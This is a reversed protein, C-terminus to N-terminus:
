SRQLIHDRENEVEFNKRCFEISNFFARTSMLQTKSEMDKMGQIVATLILNIESDELVHDNRESSLDECIYGLTELGSQQFKPDWSQTISLLTQIIDPWQKVPIEIAAIKSIVLSAGRRASPEDTVLTSLLLNKIKSRLDNPQDLYRKGYEIRLKKEKASICNKLLLSALRRIDPNLNRQALISTLMFIHYSFQTEELTKLSHESLLRAGSDVIGNKTDIIAVLHNIYNESTIMNM